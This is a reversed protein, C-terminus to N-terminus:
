SSMQGDDKLITWTDAKITAEWNISSDPAFSVEGLESIYGKTTGIMLMDDGDKMLFLYAQEDALADSQVNVSVLKGHSSTAATVTVNDEGFITKFSTETTEMIPASVTPVDEGPIQRVIKNAWNKLDEYSINSNFNIGDHSIMGAEVWASTLATHLDTPLATGAPARYFMGTTGSEASNGVGLNVNHTM